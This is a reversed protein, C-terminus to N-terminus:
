LAVGVYAWFFFTLALLLANLQPRSTGSLIVADAAEKEAEKEAKVAPAVAVEVVEVAAIEAAAEENDKKIETDVLTPSPTPAAYTHSYSSYAAIDVCNITPITCLIVQKEFLCMGTAVATTVQADTLGLAVKNAAFFIELDAKAEEADEEPPIYAKQIALVEEIISTATVVQISAVKDAEVGVIQVDVDVGGDALNRARTRRQTASASVGRIAVQNRLVGAKKAYSTVFASRAENDFTDVTYGAIALTKDIVQTPTTSSTKEGPYGLQGTDAVLHSFSYWKQVVGNTTQEQEAPPLEDVWTDINDKITQEVESFDPACYKLVDSKTGLYQALPKGGLMVNVFAKLETRL